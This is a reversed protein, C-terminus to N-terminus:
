RLRTFTTCRSSMRRRWTKTSATIMSTSRSLSRLRPTEMCPPVMTLFTLKPPVCPSAGSTTPLSIPPSLESPPRAERPLRPPNRAPKCPGGMVTGPKFMVSGEKAMRSLASCLELSTFTILVGCTIMVSLVSPSIVTPCFTGKWAAYEGLLEASLESTEPAEPVVGVAVFM